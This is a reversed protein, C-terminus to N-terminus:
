RHKSLSSANYTPSISVKYWPPNYTQEFSRKKEQTELRELIRTYKSDIFTKDADEKNFACCMGQFSYYKGRPNM